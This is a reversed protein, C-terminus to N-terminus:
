LAEGGQKLQSWSSVGDGFMIELSDTAIGIENQKLIYNSKMWDSLTMKIM